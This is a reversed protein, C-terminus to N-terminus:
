VPRKPIVALAKQLGAMAANVDEQTSYAGLSIRVSAAPGLHTHLPMACHHGARVAIQQEALVQAVDHAHRGDLTFSFVGVRNDTGASGLLTLESIDTFAALTYSILTAEHRLIAEQHDAFWRIAAVTGAIGATNPTGAEHRTPSDAWTATDTSVQTVMGGGVLLPELNALVAHRGVLCGVGTPGYLKHASFVYFDSKIASLDVATHAVAQAGDVVTLAGAAQAEAVLQAVPHLTGTVNSVHSLAVLRPKHDLATQWATQDLTGDESVPVVILTAGTQAALRQWPLFNAHHNDIAVVVRDGKKITERLGWALQNLAATTGSTFVVDFDNPAHLFDRVVGRAEEMKATAALSEAYLGRGVAAHDASLYASTAAIVATPVQTTAASDLYVCDPHATFFPFQDKVTEM